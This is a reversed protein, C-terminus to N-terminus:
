LEIAGEEQYFQPDDRVWYRNSRCGWIACGPLAQWSDLRAFNGCRRCRVVEDNESMVSQSYPDKLGVFLLPQEQRYVQISTRCRVLNPYSLSWVRIENWGNGLRINQFVFDGDRDADTEASSDNVQLALHTDPEAQGRVVLLRSGVQAGDLPEHIATSRILDEPSIVYEPELDAIESAWITILPEEPAPKVFIPGSDPPLQSLNIRNLSDPPLDSLHITLIQGDNGEQLSGTTIRSEEKALTQKGNVQLAPPPSETHVPVIAREAVEAAQGPHNPVSEARHSVAGQTPICVIEQAPPLDDPLITVIEDQDYKNGSEAEPM